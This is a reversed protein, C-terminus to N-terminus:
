LFPTVAPLPNVKPQSTGPEKSSSSSGSEAPEAPEIDARERSREELSRRLRDLEAQAARIEAETPEAGPSLKEVQSDTSPPITTYEVVGNENITKYIEQGLADPPLSLTTAMGTIVIVRNIRRCAVPYTTFAKLHKIQGVM